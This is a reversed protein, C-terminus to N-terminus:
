GQEMGSLLSNLCGVLADADLKGDEVKSKLWAETTDAPLGAKKAVDKLQKLLSDVDAPAAIITFNTFCSM